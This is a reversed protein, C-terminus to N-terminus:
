ILKCAFATVNIHSFLQVMVILLGEYVLEAGNCKRMTIKRNFCYTCHAELVADHWIKIFFKYIGVNFM